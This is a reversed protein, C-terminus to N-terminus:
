VDPVVGDTQLLTRMEWAFAKRGSTADQARLPVTPHHLEDAGRAGLCEQAGVILDGEWHGLVTRDVVEALHEEISLM